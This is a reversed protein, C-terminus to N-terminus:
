SAAQRVFQLAAARTTLEGAAQAEELLRLLRGVEPGPQLQLAQMLDHGNLLPIPAVTETYQELYVHYLAAVLQVLTEWQAVNGVGNYTALHDALALLGVDLGAAQIDRFFRYAARRTPMTGQAQRLLLPRMHGLVIDAVYKSAKNSLTLQRLVTITIEAGVKEHGYFHFHGVADSTQTEAKGVDHFLAALRLLARGNVLGDVLRTLHVHLSDRYPKLAAQATQLFPFATEEETLVTTEVQVLWRLVSLTHALVPETHPPSQAVHTLAAIAPLVVPLLGVNSMQQLVRDPVATELLKLLEDRVRETSAHALQPAAAAVATETEPALTFGFSGAQRLARLARVPDDILVQAHVMRILRAQLDALGGTPDILAATTEALAPLAMANITFDRDHLDAELDDGRFCSFDLMTEDDPLVVRGIDREHDLVYAPANLYDGVRFALQCAHHPLVFDLDHSPRGMLADRVAGGVLYVPQELQALFPRLRVLLPSLTLAEGGAPEVFRLTVREKPRNQQALRQAEEPTYGVGAVREQVLAVWRGAYATLDSM